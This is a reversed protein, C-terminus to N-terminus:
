LPVPTFGDPVIAKTIADHWFAPTPAGSGTAATRWVVDVGARCVLEDHGNRIAWGFSVLGAREDIPRLAAVHGAVHIEERLRVPRKFIVDGLRRLAIVRNPDLPVLGVALSVTLLGHSIREGFPSRAAWDADTHQPHRDGTLASFIMVDTESVARRGTRFCQGVSLDDFPASWNLPSQESSTRHDM